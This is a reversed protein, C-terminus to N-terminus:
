LSRTEPEQRGAKANLLLNLIRPETWFFGQGAISGSDGDVGMKETYGRTWM